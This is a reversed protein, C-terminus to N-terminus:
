IVKRTETRITKTYDPGNSEVITTSDEQEIVADLNHDKIYNQANKKSVFEYYGVTFDSEYSGDSKKVRYITQSHTNTKM